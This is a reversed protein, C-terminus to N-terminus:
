AVAVDNSAALLYAVLRGIAPAFPNEADCDVRALWSGGSANVQAVVLGARLVEGDATRAMLEVHDGADLPLITWFAIRDGALQLSTVPIRTGAPVRATEVARATIRMDGSPSAHHSESICESAGTPRIAVVPFPEERTRTVICPMQWTGGADRWELLVPREPSFLADPVALILHGPEFDDLRGTYRAGDTLLAVRSNIRPITLPPAPRQQARRPRFRIM